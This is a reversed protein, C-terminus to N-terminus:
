RLEDSVNICLLEDAVNIRLLEDSVNIRLLEDSVNIRLPKGGHRAGTVSSTPRVVRGTLPWQQSHAQSASRTLM